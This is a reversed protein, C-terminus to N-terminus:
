ADVSISGTSSTGDSGNGTDGYAKLLHLAHAFARMPDHQGHL